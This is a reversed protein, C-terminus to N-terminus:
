RGDSDERPRLLLVLRLIFAAEGRGINDLHMVNGMRMGVSPMM